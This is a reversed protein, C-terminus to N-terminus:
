DGASLAPHPAYEIMGKKKVCVYCIDELDMDFRIMGDRDSKVEIERANQPKSTALNVLYRSNRKLGFVLARVPGEGSVVFRVEEIPEDGRSILVVRDSFKVGIM